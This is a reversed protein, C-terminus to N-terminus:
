KRRRFLRVIFAAISGTGATSGAVVAAATAM